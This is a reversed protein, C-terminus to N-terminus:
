GASRAEFKDVAITGADGRVGFMFHYSARVAPDALNIAPGVDTTLLRQWVGDHEHWTSVTTGHMQLALRDGRALTVTSCCAGTGSPNMRGDVRVDIGSSHGRNNYWAGIYTTDDRALGVFLSDENQATGIFDAPDVIALSDASSPGVGRDLLAFFRQDATARLTGNAVSLAPVAEDPFPRRATYDASTDTSFDDVVQADTYTAPDLAATLRRRTHTAAAGGEKTTYSATATMSTDFGSAGSPPTLTFRWVASGGPPIAAVPKQDAPAATWGEPLSLSVSPDGLREGTASRVTVPVVTPGNVSVAGGDDKPGIAVSAAHSSPSWSELESVGVYAGAPNTFLLRIRDTTVAPFTVRNLGNGAPEARNRTQDPIDDWATGTWYQLRYDAAPRVGGGDDYGYWRVDSVPTPTGFDVGYYDQANPSSYNTWRTNEPVENFWVKGDLANWANDSHWTNSAIPRPYGQRLPNAADNVLHPAGTPSGAPGVPVTVDDLTPSSRVLTGDVYIRMGAGKGYHSGDRDWLVTVNHGHYPVNEVAYHDWGDPVLPQVRLRAGEQPHLGLLGSLVLDNFTSHNYDESHNRGDYIWRDEDPAHAEAVYPRGNKFQTRAYTALAAAYDEKGVVQQAPHDAVHNALGTLTQATSFPWSPGDWRCCNAADHMFWPSRRETTTPGYPAAFGQPDLLQGWAPADAPDAAGFQWPLYGIQERSDFLKHDPNKDRPMTMFFQRSPDWLWTHMAKKLAAAKGAYERATEEDGALEALKSIATADGYQYSNLTPRFGAGGHYPDDSAYSSASLEMADWVPVSWYLGLGADFQKDWGRYQRELEPLLDVLESFDGTVQARGYAASALWFSYEHAWDTTDKNVSDVAPKPGGGPGTLWFRTYDDLYSEDRVWRGESIHHAAAANIAQYPAAYGCCDLFETLIWGNAPDTYRLHEKWVRWRYYYVDQISKDPLDVFPVNAEYWQKDNFGALYSGHDLIHTGPGIAPVAAAPTQAAPTGTAVTAGALNAALLGAAVLLTPLRRRGPGRARTRRKKNM